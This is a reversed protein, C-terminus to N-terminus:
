DQACRDEEHSISEKQFQGPVRQSVAASRKGEYFCCEMPQLLKDTGAPTGEKPFLMSRDPRQGDAEDAVM